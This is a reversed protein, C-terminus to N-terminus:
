VQAAVGVPGFRKLQVVGFGHEEAVAVVQVIVAVTPPATVVVGPLHTPPWHVGIGTSGHVTAPVVFHVTSLRSPVQWDPLHTTLGHESVVDVAAQVIAADPVTPLVAPLHEIPTQTATSGHVAFPRIQRM